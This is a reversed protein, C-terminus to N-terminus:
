PRPPRIRSAPQYNPGATVDVRRLLAECPPELAEALAVTEARGLLQWPLVTLRDTDDEIEQRLALGAETARGDNALGRAALSAWAAAIDDPTSGRSTPLWGDEYDLWANHLVSAEQGSLGAAAVLAWHTDGRWERICNIAHWGSLVPDEPRPMRLHAAMLVRGVTPLADVVDWLAPGTDALPARIEPAHAALGEGVAEDRAAWVDEFTTGKEAVLDFAWRIAAPSISGFSAIVADPGAPALPAGRAAIYGLPGPLGLAETRAVAGPDWFIWGITTQVSRAIRRSLGVWDDDTM